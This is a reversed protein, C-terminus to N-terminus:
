GWFPNTIALCRTICVDEKVYFNSQSANPKGGRSEGVRRPDMAGNEQACNVRAEMLSVSNSSRRPRLEIRGHVITTSGKEAAELGMGSQSEM